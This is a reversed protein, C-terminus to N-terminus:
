ELDQNEYLEEDDPDHEYSFQYDDCECVEDVGNDLEYGGCELCQPNPHLNKSNM